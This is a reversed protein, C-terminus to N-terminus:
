NTKFFKCETLTLKQSQMTPKCKNFGSGILKKIYNNKTTPGGLRCYLLFFQFVPNNNIFFIAIEVVGGTSM